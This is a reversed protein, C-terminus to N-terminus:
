YRFLSITTISSVLRKLIGVESEMLAEDLIKYSITGEGKLVPPTIVLGHWISLRCLTFTFSKLAKHITYPSPVLQRNLLVSLIGLLQDKTHKLDIANEYTDNAVAGCM